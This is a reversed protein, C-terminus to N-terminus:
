GGKHGDGDLTYKFLQRAAQHYVIIGEPDMFGPAAVSGELALSNTVETLALERFIGEYLVPV